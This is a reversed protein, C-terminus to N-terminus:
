AAADKHAFSSRNDPRRRVYRYWLPRLLEDAAFIMVLAIAFMFLGAFNHLFGQATAEGAHYTLLILILVRFFNALLAVPVILLVLLMAYRWDAQHRLYVYFLSIATLSILSNLGSCAAAVLLEYQGIYIRVGEGVIPYNLLQLFSISWQSLAIKLSVTLAAVVTDPPPFAFGLYLLPFWLRKVVEFGVFAYFVALLVAYMLFAEIEVIQTVRAFIFLPLLVGLLIAVHLAPAPRALDRVPTFERWLLWLGTALIIPGHAGEEGTWGNEAVFIMTPAIIAVLGVLLMLVPVRFGRGGRVTGTGTVENALTAMSWEKCLM